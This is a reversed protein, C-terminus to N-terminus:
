SGSGSELHLRKDMRSVICFIPGIKQMTDLISLRNRRYLRLRQRYYGGAATKFNDARRRRRIVAAM